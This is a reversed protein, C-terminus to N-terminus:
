PNRSLDLAVTKGLETFAWMEIPPGNRVTAPRPTLEVIQRLCLFELLSDIARWLAKSAFPISYMEAFHATLDALRIGVSLKPGLRSLIESAKLEVSDIIVAHSRLESLLPAMDRKVQSSAAALHVLDGTGQKQTVPAGDVLKDVKALLDAIKASNAAESTQVEGKGVREIATRLREPNAAIYARTTEPSEHGLFDQVVELGAGANLLQEAAYHRLSHAHLNTGSKRGWLGIKNSITRVKLGFLSEDLAKGNV